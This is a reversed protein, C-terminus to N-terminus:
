RGCELCERFCRRDDCPDGTGPDTWVKCAWEAREDSTESCPCVPEGVFRRCPSLLIETREEPREGRVAGCLIDPRFKKYRRM